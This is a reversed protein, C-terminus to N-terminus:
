CAEKLILHLKGDDGGAKIMEATINDEGPSKGTKLKRIAEEVEKKQIPGNEIDLNEDAEPIEVTQAPEPRNLVERLHEEWRKLKVKGGSITNGDRDKVPLEPNLHQGGAITKITQYVTKMDRKRAAEEAETTIKEVYDKKDKRASKKVEKDKSRYEGEIREKLRPSKASLM